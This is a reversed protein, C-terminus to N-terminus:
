ALLAVSACWQGGALHSVCFMSVIGLAPSFLSWLWGPFSAPLCKGSPEAIRSAPAGALSVCVQRAYPFAIPVDVSGHDSSDFEPFLGTNLLDVQYVRGATWLARGEVM